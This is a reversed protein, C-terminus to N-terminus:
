LQVKLLGEMFIERTGFYDYNSELANDREKGTYKYKSNEPQYTRNEMIYGWCDYDQASVVTNTSNIVARVSGLHDKLYYYKTTDTNMHGIQDLGWLNWQTLSTGSYIAVEKGSVDRVYYTNGVLAWYGSGDGEGAQQLCTLLLATAVPVKM